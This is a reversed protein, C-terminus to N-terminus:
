GQPWASHGSIDLAALGELSNFVAVEAEITNSATRIAQRLEILATYEASTLTTAAELEVQEKHRLVKYDPCSQEIRRAAERKVQQTKLVKLEELSYLPTLAVADLEGQSAVEVFSYGERMSHRGPLLVAKDTIRGQQDIFYGFGTSTEFEYVM